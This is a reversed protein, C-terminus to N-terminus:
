LEDCQGESCEKDGPGGPEGYDYVGCRSCQYVTQSCNKGHPCMRGGQSEWKHGIACLNGGGLAAAEAVLHKLPTSFYVRDTM